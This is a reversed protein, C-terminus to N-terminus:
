QYFSCDLESFDLKGTANKFVTVTVVSGHRFVAHWALMKVCTGNNTTTVPIEPYHNPSDTM